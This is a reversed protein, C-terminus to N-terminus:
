GMRRQRTLGNTGAREPGLAADTEHLASSTFTPLSEQGIGQRRNSFAGRGGIGPWLGTNCFLGPLGLRELLISCPRSSRPRWEYM